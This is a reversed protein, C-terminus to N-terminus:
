KKALIIKVAEPAFGSQAVAADVIQVRSHENEAAQWPAIISLYTEGAVVATDGFGMHALLAEVAAETEMRGAIKTKEELAAHRAEQGADPDDLVSQLLSLAEERRSNLRIKTQQVTQASLAQESVTELLVPVSPMGHEKRGMSSVILLTLLAACGGFRAARVAAIRNM